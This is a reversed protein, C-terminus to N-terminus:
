LLRQFFVAVQNLVSTHQILDKHCLGRHRVAQTSVGASILKGAYSEGDARYPDHEATVVFTPPMGALRRSELPAAYPHVLLASRPLWQRYRRAAAVTDIHAAYSGSAPEIRTLSPDLMPAVLSLARVHPSKTGNSRDRSMAALGNAINGGAEHGALGIRGPDAKFYKANEVAWALALYADETAAPFPYLPALSYAVSIVWAPISEALYSAQAHAEDLDGEIFGGGHFYLVIPLIQKEFTPRYHRLLIHQAHGSIPVDQIELRPNM